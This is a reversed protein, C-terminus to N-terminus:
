WRGAQWWASSGSWSPGPWRGLVYESGRDILPGLRDALTVTVPGPGPRVARCPGTPEAESDIMILPV